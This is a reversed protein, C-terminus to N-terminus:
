RTNTKKQGGATRSGSKRSKVLTWGDESRAEKPDITHPVSADPRTTNTSPASSLLQTGNKQNESAPPEMPEPIYQASPRRVETHKADSHKGDACKGDACKGDARKPTSRPKRRAPFKIAAVERSVRPAWRGSMFDRVLKFIPTVLHELRKTPGDIGRIQLIDMWRAESVEGTHQMARAVVGVPHLASLEQEALWPNAVAAYYVKIYRIGMHMFSVRRRIRPLFRYNKKDIWAEEQMERMACVIESEKATARKGGPPEWLLEGAGRAQEVLLRLLKGGDEKVFAAHFKALKKHYLEKKEASLWIRYWMQDFNLSWIDLLEEATMREFLSTVTRLHHRSYRGHTFEAFEYTYRKHVMVVEPRRTQQNIRCLLIGISVKTLYKRANAAKEDVLPARDDGKRLTIAGSNQDM